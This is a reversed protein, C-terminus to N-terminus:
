LKTLADELFGSPLVVGLLKAFILFSAITAVAAILLSALTSKYRMLRFLVFLVLFTSLLFNLPRLIFPYAVTALAIGLPAAKLWSSGGEKEAREARGRFTRYAYFAAVILLLAGVATPMFGPGPEALTGVSLAISSALYVLAFILVALSIAKEQM